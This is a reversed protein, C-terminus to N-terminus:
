LETNKGGAETATARTNSCFAAIVPRLGRLAENSDSQRGKRTDPAMIFGARQTTISDDEIM